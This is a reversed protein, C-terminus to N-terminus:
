ASVLPAKQTVNSVLIPLRVNVALGQDSVLEFSHRDGFITQLRSRTNALGIGTNEARAGHDLGPGTDRIQLHLYGNERRAQIQVAGSGRAAAIGHQVANEVLPQLLLSPVPIDLAQPDINWKIQLRDGLRMQEIDLYGKIFEIEEALPLEHQNTSVLAKRLLEALRLVLQEALAPDEHVLEAISHLTNFLFHPNLQSRLAQLRADRLRTELEASKLHKERLDQSHRAAHWALVVAGFIIPNSGSQHKAAAVLGALFGDHSQPQLAILWKVLSSAFVISQGILAQLLSAGLAGLLLGTVYRTWTRPGDYLRGCLWFVPLSVIGWSSWYVFEKWFVSLWTQNPVDWYLQPACVVM